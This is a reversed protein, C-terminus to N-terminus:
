RSGRRGKKGESDHGLRHHEQWAHGMAWLGETPNPTCRKTLTPLEGSSAAVTANSGSEHDRDKSHIIPPMCSYYDLLAEAPDACTDGGVEPQKQKRGDSVSGSLAVM